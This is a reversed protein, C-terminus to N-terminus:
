GPSPSSVIIEFVRGPNASHAGGVSVMLFMQGQDRACLFGVDLVTATTQWLHHRRLYDILGEKSGFIVPGIDLLSMQKKTSRIERWVVGGVFSGM